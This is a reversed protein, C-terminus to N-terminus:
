IQVGISIVGGWDNLLRAVDRGPVHGYIASEPASHDGDIYAMIYDPVPGTPFGLEFTEIGDGYKHQGGQVSVEGKPTQLAPAPNFPGFQNTCVKIYHALHEPTAQVTEM